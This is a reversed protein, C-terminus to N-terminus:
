EGPVALATFLRCKAREGTQLPHDVRERNVLSNGLKYEIVPYRIRSTTVCGGKRRVPLIVPNLIPGICSRGPVKLISASPENLQYHRGFPNNQHAIREM